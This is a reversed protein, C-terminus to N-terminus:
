SGTYEYLQAGGGMNRVKSATSSASATSQYASSPVLKCNTTIWQTLKSQSGGAGGSQILFYKIKGAKAFKELQAVSM